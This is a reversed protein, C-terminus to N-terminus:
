YLPTWRCKLTASTPRGSRELHLEDEQHPSLFYKLLATPGDIRNKPIRSSLVHGRVLPVQYDVHINEAMPEFCVSHRGIVRSTPEVLPYFKLIRGLYDDLFAASKWLGLQYLQNRLSAASECERADLRSEPLMRRVRCPTVDHGDYYDGGCSERFKGNLYSKRSNVRFGFRELESWVTTAHATPVIIDDGFVRVQDKFQYVLKPTLPTKLSKAIGIFAVALFAIAEVPFCVASGMSAFKALRIIGHGPVDAQRSRSAQLFGSIEPHNRFMALVLQNSVRDSAEKLDLTALEQSISGERALAQNRSQDTFGIMMKLIDDREIHDYFLQRLAQQAFQMVTPEIAIIRPTKLTKPVQIVRVPREDGPELFTVHSLNEDEILFRLSPVAFEWPPLWYKLRQPWESFDYKQNGKIRDATAGPGHKPYVNGSSVERNITNFADGFIISIARTVESYDDESLTSDVDKVEKECEIYQYFAAREREPTCPIEIKAWMLCFQRLAFIAEVDPDDLLVGSETNFVRQLFGRLFVPLGGRRRFGAFLDDAVYGLDLGKQLDAGFNALTITLFSLGEDEVRSKVTKFDLATSTGCLRGLDILVIKCLQMLSKM